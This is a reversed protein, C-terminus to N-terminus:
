GLELRAPVTISSAGVKHFSTSNINLRAKLPRWWPKRGQTAHVSYTKSAESAKAVAHPGASMPVHM